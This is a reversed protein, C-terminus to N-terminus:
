FHKSDRWIISNPMVSIVNEAINLCKMTFDYHMNGDYPPNM